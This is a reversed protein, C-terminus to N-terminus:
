PYRGYLNRSLIPFYFNQEAFKMRSCIQRCMQRTDQHGFVFCFVWLKSSWTGLPVGKYNKQSKTLSRNEHGLFPKITNLLCSKTSYLTTRNIWSHFKKFLFELRLKAKLNHSFYPLFSNQGTRILLNWWLVFKIATKKQV